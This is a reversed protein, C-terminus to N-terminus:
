GRRDEEAYYAAMEDMADDDPCTDEHGLRVGNIERVLALDVDDDSGLVIASVNDILGSTAVAVLDPSLFALNVPDKPDNAKAARAKERAEHLDRQNARCDDCVDDDAAVHGGCALCATCLPLGMLSYENDDCIYCGKRYVTPKSRKSADHMGEALMWYAPDTLPMKPM